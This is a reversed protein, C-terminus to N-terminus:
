TYEGNKKEKFTPTIVEISNFNKHQLVTVQM